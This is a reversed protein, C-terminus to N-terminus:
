RTGQTITIPIKAANVAEEEIQAAAKSGQRRTKTNSFKAFYKILTLASSPRIWEEEPM